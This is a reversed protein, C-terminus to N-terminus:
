ATHLCVFRKRRLSHNYDTDEGEEDTWSDDCRDDKARYVSVIKKNSGGCRILTVEKESNITVFGRRNPTLDYTLGGDVLNNGNESHNSQISMRNETIFESVKRGLQELNDDDSCDRINLRENSNMADADDLQDPSSCADQYTGSRSMLNGNSSNNEDRLTYEENVIASNIMGGLETERLCMSLERSAAFASPSADTESIDMTDTQTETDVLKIKRNEPESQYRRDRVPSAQPIAFGGGGGSGNRRHRLKKHKQHSVIAISKPQSSKDLSTYLTAKVPSQFDFKENSCSISHPLVHNCVDPTTDVPSTTSSKHDPSSKALSNSTFRRLQMKGFTSAM